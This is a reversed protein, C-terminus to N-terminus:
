AGRRWWGRRPSAAPATIEAADATSTSRARQPADEAKARPPASPAVPEPESLAGESPPAREATLAGPEARPGRSRRPRKPKDTAFPLEVWVDPEVGAELASVPDADNRV